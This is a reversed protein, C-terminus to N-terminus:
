GVVSSDEKIGGLKCWWPIDMWRYNLVHVIPHAKFNELLPIKAARTRRLYNRLTIFQFPLWKQCISLSPADANRRRLCFATAQSATCGSVLVPKHWNWGQLRKTCSAVANKKGNQKCSFFCSCFCYIGKRCPFIKYLSM